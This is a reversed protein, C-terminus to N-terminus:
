EIYSLIKKEITYKKSKEENMNDVEQNKLANNKGTMHRKM